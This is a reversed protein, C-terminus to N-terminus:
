FIIHYFIINIHYFVIFIINKSQLRSPMASFSLVRTIVFYFARGRVEDCYRYDLHLQLSTLLECSELFNSMSDVLLEDVLWYSHLIANLFIM